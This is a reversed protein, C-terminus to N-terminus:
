LSFLVSVAGVCVGAWIGKCAVVCVYAHFCVCVFVCVYVCVPSDGEFKRDCMGMVGM